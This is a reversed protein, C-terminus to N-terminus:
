KFICKELSYLTSEKVIVFLGSASERASRPRRRCRGIARTRMRLPANKTKFSASEKLVFFLLGGM